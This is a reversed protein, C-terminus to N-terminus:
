TFRCVVFSSCLDLGWLLARRSGVAWYIHCSTRWLRFDLILGSAWTSDVFSSTCIVFSVQFTWCNFQWFSTVFRDWLKATRHSRFSDITGLVRRQPEEMMAAGGGTNESRNLLGVFHSSGVGLYPARMVRINAALIPGNQGDAVITLSYILFYFCDWKSSEQQCVSLCELRELM